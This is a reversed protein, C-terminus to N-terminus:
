LSQKSKFPDIITLSLITSVPGAQRVNGALKTKLAIRKLNVYEYTYTNLKHAM